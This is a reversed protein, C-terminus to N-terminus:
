RIDYVDVGKEQLAFLLTKKNALIRERVMPHAKIRLIGNVITCEKTSLTIFYFQEVLVQIIGIDKRSKDQLFSFKKIFNGIDEM